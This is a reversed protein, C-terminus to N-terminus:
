KRIIAKLKIDELTALVKSINERALEELVIRLIEKIQAIDVQKKLGERKAIKRAFKNLNLKGHKEALLQVSYRTIINDLTEKTLPIELIVYKKKRGFM